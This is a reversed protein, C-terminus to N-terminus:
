LVIERLVTNENFFFDFIDLCILLNLTCSYRAILRKVGLIKKKTADKERERSHIFLISFYIAELFIYGVTSYVEEQILSATM